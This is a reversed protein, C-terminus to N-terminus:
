DVKILQITLRNKIAVVNREAGASRAAVSVRSSGFSEFATGGASIFGHHSVGGGNSIRM